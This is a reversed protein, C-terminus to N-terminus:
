EMPGISDMEQRAYQELFGCRRCRWSEIRFRRKDRLKLGGAWNVEPEGEFWEAPRYFNTGRALLFGSEMEASCKPCKKASAGLDM